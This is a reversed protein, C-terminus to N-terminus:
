TNIYRTSKEESCCGEGQRSQSALYPAPRFPRSAPPRMVGAILSREFEDAPLRLDDAARRLQPTAATNQGISDDNVPSAEKDAGDGVEKGAMAAGGLLQDQTEAMLEQRARAELVSARAAISRDAASPNLPALAARRVTQMKAITEEPTREKGLDIGVSGAVAYAAGDPGRVFSFSAGGRAHPGAVALHAQEHARVEADRQKLERLQRLEQESLQLEAAPTPSPSDNGAAEGESGSQRARQHGEPSITVKDEVLSAPEAAPPSTARRTGNARDLAADATGAVAADRAASSEAVATAMAPRTGAGAANGWQRGALSVATYSSMAMSIMGTM